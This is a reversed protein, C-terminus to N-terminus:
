DLLTDMKDDQKPEKLKKLKDEEMAIMKNINELTRSAQLPNVFGMQLQQQWKEAITKAQEAMKINKKKETYTQVEIIAKKILSHTSLLESPLLQMANRLMQEVQKARSEKSMSVGFNIQM